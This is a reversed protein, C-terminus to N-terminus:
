VDLQVNTKKVDFFLIDITIELTSSPNLDYGADQVVEELVNRVGFALDRNGALDGLVIKNEIKGINIEQSQALFGILCSLIIVIWKM